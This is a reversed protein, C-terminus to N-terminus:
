IFVGCAFILLGVRKTFKPTCVQFIAEILRGRNAYQVNFEGLEVLIQESFM